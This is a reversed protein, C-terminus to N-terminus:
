KAAAVTRSDFFSDTYVSIRNLGEGFIRHTLDSLLTDGTVDVRTSCRSGLHRSVISHSLTGQDLGIEHRLVGIASVDEDQAAFLSGASSEPSRHRMLQAMLREIDAPDICGSCAAIPTVNEIEADDDNLTLCLYGYAGATAILGALWVPMADVQLLLALAAAISIGVLAVSRSPSQLLRRDPERYAQGSIIRGTPSTPGCSRDKAQKFDLAHIM